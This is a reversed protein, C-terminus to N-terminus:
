SITASVPLARTSRQLTLWKTAFSPEAAMRALVTGTRTARRLPMSTQRRLGGAEVPYVAIDANALLYTTHELQAAYTRTNGVQYEPGSQNGFAATNINLPFASSLWVLNKRGHFGQIRRTIADLADLTRDVRRDTQQNSLEADWFLARKTIGPGAKGGSIALGGIADGVGPQSTVVRSAYDQVAQRLLAPNTTFDQIIRLTSDLAYVAIPKSDDFSALLKLLETRAYIQQDIPTNLFDILLITAGNPPVAERQGGFNTFVTDPKNKSAALLRALTPNPAASVLESSFNQIPRQKGDEFVKLDEPKLDLIPKGARDTVVLDVNVLETTAHFTFEPELKPKKESPSNGLRSTYDTFGGAPGGTSSAGGGGSHQAFLPIALLVSCAFLVFPKM